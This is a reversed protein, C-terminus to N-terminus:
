EGLLAVVKAADLERTKGNGLRQMLLMQEAVSSCPIWVWCQAERADVPRDHDALAIPPLALGALRQESLLVQIDNTDWGTGVLSGVNASGLETLLAGLVQEDWGGVEVLRNDAVLFAEAEQEDKFSVGRLVPVYWEGNKEVVRTPVPEGAEKMALLAELRGHGAVLKGTEENMAVPQVFGFRKISAILDPLSHKKPNRTAPQVESLAVYEIRVQPVEESM